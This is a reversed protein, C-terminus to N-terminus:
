VRKGEEEAWRALRRRSAEVEADTPPLVEEASPHRDEYGELEAQARRLHSTM